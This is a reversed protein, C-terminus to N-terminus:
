RMERGAQRRQAFAHHPHVQSRTFLVKRAVVIQIVNCLYYGHSGARHHRVDNPHNASLSAQAHLNCCHSHLPADELDVNQQCAALRKGTMTKERNANVLEVLRHAAWGPHM